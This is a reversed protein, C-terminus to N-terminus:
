CPDARATIPAPKQHIRAGHWDEFVFAALTGELELFQHAVISQRGARFALASVHFLQQRQGADARLFRAAARELDGFGRGALHLAVLRMGLALVFLMVDVVMM